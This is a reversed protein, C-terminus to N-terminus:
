RWDEGRDFWRVLSHEGDWEKTPSSLAALQYYILQESLALQLQTIVVGFMMLAPHSTM